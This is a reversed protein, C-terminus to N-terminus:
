KGNKMAEGTQIKEGLFYFASPYLGKKGKSAEMKYDDIM